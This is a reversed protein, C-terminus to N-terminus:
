ICAVHSAKETKTDFRRDDLRYRFTNMVVGDADQSLAVCEDEAFIFFFSATPM